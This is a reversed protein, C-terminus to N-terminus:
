INGTVIQKNQPFTNIQMKKKQTERLQNIFTIKVSQNIIKLKLIFIRIKTGILTSNESLKCSRALLQSYKLFLNDFNHIRLFEQWSQIQIFLYNIQKSIRGQKIIMITQKFRISNQYIKLQKLSFDEQINQLQERKQILNM